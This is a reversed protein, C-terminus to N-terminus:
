KSQDILKIFEKFLYHSDHPGPSAEPHFQVSFASKDKIRIGEVTNDNLNTHSIEVNENEMTAERDISFGHNQTTIEGKGSILNIVPHNCGRHGNHMKYTPINMARALLQHGLCIGFIPKNINLVQRVFDIAFPMASPDGPGNSIFYADPNWREVEEFPTRAPFVKLYCNEQMLKSLMSRKVGYDMVAVHYWAEENGLFYPKTTSVKTSLERGQMKPFNSLQTKAKEISLEETVIIGNMAGKARIHRVMARTDVNEIAVINNDELFSRLDGDAMERSHNSALNRVILGHIKPSDSENELNSIGYNGIHVHTMILLQGFYSPDTFVEQYGTMSTTFCVEGLSVGRSGCSDGYFISGDELLIYSRYSSTDFSM